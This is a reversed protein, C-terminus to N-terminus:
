PPPTHWGSRGQPATQRPSLLTTTRGSWCAALWTRSRYLSLSRLSHPPLHLCVCHGHRAVKVCCSHTALWGRLDSAGLAGLARGVAQQRHAGAAKLVDLLLQLYFFRWHDPKATTAASTCLATLAESLADM